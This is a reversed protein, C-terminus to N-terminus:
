LRGIARAYLGLAVLVGVGLAIFTLDAMDKESLMIDSSYRAGGMLSRNRLLAPSMLIEYPRAIAATSRERGGYGLVRRM